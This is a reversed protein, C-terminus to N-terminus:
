KGYSERWLQNGADFNFSLKGLLKNYVDLYSFWHPHSFIFCEQCKSVRTDTHNEEMDKIVPTIPAKQKKEKGKKKSNNHTGPM